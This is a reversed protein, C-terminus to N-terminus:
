REDRREVVSSEVFSRERAEHAMVGGRRDVSQDEGSRRAFAQREVLRLGLPEDGDRCRLTTARERDIEADGAGVGALDGGRERTGGGPRDIAIQDGAGIVHPRRLFTEVPMERREGARGVPRDDDVVDRVARAHIERVRRQEAEGLKGVDDAHLVAADVLRLGEIQHTRTRGAEGHEGALVRQEIARDRVAGIAPNEGRGM